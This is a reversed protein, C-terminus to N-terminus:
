TELSKFKELRPTSELLVLTLKEPYIIETSYKINLYFAMVLFQPALMHTPFVRM